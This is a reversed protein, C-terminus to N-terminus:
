NLVIQKLTLNNDTILPEIPMTDPSISMIENAGTKIIDETISCKKAKSLEAKCSYFHVFQVILVTIGFGIVYRIISKKDDPKFLVFIFILSIAILLLTTYLPNNIVGFILKNNSLADSASGVISKVDM